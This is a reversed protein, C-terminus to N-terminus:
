TSAVVVAIVDSTSVAPVEFTVKGADTNLTGSTLTVATGDAAVNTVAYGTSPTVTVVYGVAAYENDDVTVGDVTVTFNSDTTNSKNVKSADYFAVVGNSDADAVEVTYSATYSAYDLGTTTTAAGGVINRLLTMYGASQTAATFSTDLVVIKGDAWLGLDENNHYIHVTPDTVDYDLTDNVVVDDETMTDSAAVLEYNGTKDNVIFAFLADDSGSNIFTVDLETNMVVYNGSTINTATGSVVATVGTGLTVQYADSLTVDGTTTGSWTFTGAGKGDVGYTYAIAAGNGNHQISSAGFM